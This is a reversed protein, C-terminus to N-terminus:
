DLHALRLTWGAATETGTVLHWGTGDDLVSIRDVPGDVEWTQARQWAGDRRVTGFVETVPRGSRSAFLWDVGQRALGAALADVPGIELTRSLDVVRDPADAVSLAGSVSQQNGSYRRMSWFPRYPEAPRIFATTLRGDRRWAQPHAAAPILLGSPAAGGSPAGPAQPSTRPVAAALLAAQGDATNAIVETGPLGCVPHVSFTWREPALPGAVNWHESVPLQVAAIQAPSLGADRAGELEGPEGDRLAASVPLRALRAAVFRNVELAIVLDAGDVCAQAARVDEPALAVTRLAQLRRESVRAVSVRGDGGDEDTEFIGLYHTEGARFQWFGALRPSSFIETSVARTTM